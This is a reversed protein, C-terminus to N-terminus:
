QWSSVIKLWKPFLYCDLLSPKKNREQKLKQGSQEAIFQSRSSFAVYVREEGWVM